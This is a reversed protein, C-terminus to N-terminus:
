EEPEALDALYARITRPYLRREVQKIREHLTTETDDPLVPVAEQALIPGDDVEATAVHITTGTVKVGHDLADRVAHWGKFAPLLAPHSNLVRAPFAEVLRPVVTGFGAMVVLGIAHAQLVKVLRETYGDRDFSSGWESREVLEAPVGHQAAVDLAPCPRDTLVVVVGVAEALIADLLTGSGSALVAIRVPPM